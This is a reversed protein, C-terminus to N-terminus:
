LMFSICVVYLSIVFIGNHLEYLSTCLPMRCLIVNHVPHCHRCFLITHLIANRAFHCQTWFSKKHLITMRQLIANHAVHWQTWFRVTHTQYAISNCKYFISWHWIQDPDFSHLLCVYFESNDYSPLMELMWKNFDWEEGRALECSLCTIWTLYTTIKFSTMLIRHNYIIYQSIHIPKLRQGLVM